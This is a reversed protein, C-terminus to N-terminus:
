LNKNLQFKLVSQQFYFLLWSLLIWIRENLVGLEKLLFYFFYNEQVIKSNGVVTTQKKFFLNLMKNKIEIRIKKREQNRDNEMAVEFRYVFCFQIIRVKM